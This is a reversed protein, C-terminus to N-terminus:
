EITSVGTLLCPLEGAGWEEGPLPTLIRGVLFRRGGHSDVLPEPPPPFVLDPEAAPGAPSKETAKFVNLILQPLVHLVFVTMPM